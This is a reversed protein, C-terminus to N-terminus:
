GKVNLAHGKLFDGIMYAILKGATENRKGDALQEVGECIHLYAVSSEAATWHIYQRAHMTSIGGPSTESCLVEELADMDLEIGTYGDDTFSIAHEVAQKFTRRGHLFIGEWSIFDTFPNEAMDVLVNQPVYNEHVGIVCYQQLYGNDDAYRFGNGSHRGELPGYDTHADLNIANIQALPILGAKNLGKAVGKLLPYANNQGGGIVIPIKGYSAIVKVLSEVEDDIIKVAQRYADIREEESYANTEIVYKIDGFDFAGLLLVEEGSIYDNSQMNLFASLFPEWSSDTGGKGCNAKVGIDEPIGVLVYKQKMYALEEVWDEEKNLSQIREGIKTEFRRLKTLSLIDERNYFRFHQM